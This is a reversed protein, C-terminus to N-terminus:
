KADLLAKLLSQTDEDRARMRGPYCGSVPGAATTASVSSPLISLQDNALHHAYWRDIRGARLEDWSVRM